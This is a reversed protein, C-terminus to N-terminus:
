RSPDRNSLRAPCRLLACFYFKQRAPSNLLRAPRRFDRVPHFFQGLLSSVSLAPRFIHAPPQRLRQPFRFFHRALRRADTPFSFVGIPFWFFHRAPQRACRALLRIQRAPVCVKLPKPHWRPTCCVWGNPTARIGIFVPHLSLVAVSLWVAPRVICDRTSSSRPIHQCKRRRGGAATRPQRTIEAASKM